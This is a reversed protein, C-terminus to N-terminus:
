PQRQQGLVAEHFRRDKEDGRRRDEGGAELLKAIGFDLLKPQRLGFRSMQDYMIPDIAIAAQSLWYALAQQRPALKKFSDAELQVFGTAGVRDVLAGEQAPLAACFALYLIAIPKM